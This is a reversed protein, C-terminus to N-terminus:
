STLKVLIAVAKTMEEESLSAFGFRLGNDHPNGPQQFSMGIMCLGAHSADLIIKKVPFEPKFKAWVAMGGLPKIFEVAHSLKRTLLDCIFDCRQAYIKNAKKIHRSLDGNIVMQSLMYEVFTDGRLDILRRLYIAKKIIEPAAIMYGVRISPALLKTFSGIYIIKGNHNGCALPLIPSNEYHFDYDYDDEIVYFGYQEILQLLKRRRAASMTVTTPHHHHPVIYLLKIPITKLIEELQDIDPGDQDVAIKIVSAGTSEIADNAYIYNPETVVAHDGRSLLVSAAIYIAMQAGSTIVIDERTINLGRTENLFVSAAEKLLGLGGQDKLCMLQKIRPTIVEDRYVKSLEKFPALEPDPFGDNVVIDSSKAQRFETQAPSQKTSLDKNVITPVFNNLPRFTRPKIVPLEPIVRYGKRDVSEIWEQTLLEEYASIVTKRNVSLLGAMQRTGPFFAGPPIMGQQILSILRSTIQKYLPFRSDKDPLILNNFPLM